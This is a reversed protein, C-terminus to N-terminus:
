HDLYCEDSNSSKNRGVITHEYRLQLDVMALSKCTVKGHRLLLLIQMLFIYYHDSHIYVNFAEEPFHYEYLEELESTEHNWRHVSIIPHILVSHDKELMNGTQPQRFSPFFTNRKEYGLRVKLLHSWPGFEVPVIDAFHDCTCLRLPLNQVYLASDNPDNLGKMFVYDGFYDFRHLLASSQNISLLIQDCVDRVTRFELRRYSRKIYEHVWRTNYRFGHIFASTGKKFDFQQSLAGVFFLNKCSVSEFFPNLIPFKNFADCEVDVHLFSTCPSFGICLIIADYTHGSEGCLAEICREMKSGNRFFPSDDWDLNVKLKLYYADLIKMNISRVYGPYHHNWAFKESTVMHMTNVVDNLRNAIEFGANGGGVILVHKDKFPSLDEVPVNEYTYIKAGSKTTTMNLPLSAIRANPKLGSAIYCKKCLIEYHISQRMFRVRFGETSITPDAHTGKEVSAVQANYWVHLHYFAEFAKLYAVLSDASPYYQTDFDRFLLKGHDHEYTLLSNWDYRMINEINKQRHTGGCHVKNVSILTRTRPFTDFFSGPHGSAELVIYSEPKHVDREFFYALQIGAPGAGIIVHDIHLRIPEPSQTTQLSSRSPEQNPFQMQMQLRILILAILTSNVYGHLFIFITFRASEFLM